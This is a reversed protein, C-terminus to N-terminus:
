RITPFIAMVAGLMPKPAATTIGVKAKRCMGKPCTVLGLVTPLIAKLIVKQQWGPQKLFDHYFFRFSIFNSLFL